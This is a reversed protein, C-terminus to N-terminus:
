ESRLSDVPNTRVANLLMTFISAIMIILLIAIPIVFYWWSLTIRESYKQLYQTGLYYALPTSVLSAFSLQFITARILLNGIHTISAGLIKRIGIEKTKDAIKQSMMAVLGLCAIAISLLTFLLIQNRTVKEYAYAQNL